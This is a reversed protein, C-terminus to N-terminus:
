RVHTQALKLLHHLLPFGPTSCDIPNCLTPCSQAVSSFMWGDGFKYNNFNYVQGYADVLGIKCCTNFFTKAGVGKDKNNFFHMQSINYHDIEPENADITLIDPKYEEIVEAFSYFQISKAKKHDCGTISHLTAIKIIKNNINITAFLTRDPLLCREFVNSEIIKIKKSTIIMVGLKRSRTDYRGPIRYDLSFNLTAVDKFKNKLYNYSNETVEQLTIIFLDDTMINKCLERYIKEIDCGYSINWNLIVM